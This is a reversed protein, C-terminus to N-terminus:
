LQYSGTEAPVHTQYPQPFPLQGRRGFSKRDNKFFHPAATLFKPPSSIACFTTLRLGSDDIRRPRQPRYRTREFATEAALSGPRDNTNRATSQPCSVPDSPTKAPGRPEAIAADEAAHKLANHLCADPSAQDAAFTKRHIGTQNNRVGLRPRQSRSRRQRDASRAGLSYTTTLTSWSAILCKRISALGTGVATARINRIFGDLKKELWALDDATRANAADTFRM